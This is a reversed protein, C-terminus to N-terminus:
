CVILQKTEGRRQIRLGPRKAFLTASFQIVIVPSADEEELGTIFRSVQQLALTRVGLFILTPLTRRRPLGMWLVLEELAPPEREDTLRLKARM